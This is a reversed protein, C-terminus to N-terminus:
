APKRLRLDNRAALMAPHVVMGERLLRAMENELFRLLAADLDHRSLERMESIDQYRDAKYPDLKDAMFVVKELVSMGQRGTSHWYVADYALSDNLGQLKLMEAAIPGHLLIPVAREVPGIDLGLQRARDLLASDDLGRAMDHASVALWVQERDVGHPQALDLAIARVRLVHERIAFPLAELHAAVWEKIDSLM